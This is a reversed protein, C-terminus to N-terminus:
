VLRDFRPREKGEKRREEVSTRLKHAHPRQADSLTKAWGSEGRDFLYHQHKWKRREEATQQGPDAQM